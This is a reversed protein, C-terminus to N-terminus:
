AAGIGEGRYDQTDHFLSLSISTARHVPGLLSVNAGLLEPINNLDLRLTKKVTLLETLVFWHAYPKCLRTLGVAGNM